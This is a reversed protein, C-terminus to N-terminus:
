FLKIQGILAMIIFALVFVPLLAIDGKKKFIQVAVIKYGLGIFMILVCLILFTPITTMFLSLVVTMKLDALGSFFEGNETIGEMMLLGFIAGLLGFEINQM